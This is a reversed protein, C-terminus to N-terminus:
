QAFHCRVPAHFQQELRHVYGRVLLASYDRATLSEHDFHTNLVSFSRQSYSLQSRCDLTHICVLTVVFNLHSFCCDFTQKNQIHAVKQRRGKKGTKGKKSMKGKEGGHKTIEFNAWTCIRALSAEWGVSGEEKPRDSLWFTGGEVLTLETANYLIGSHEDNDTSDGIRGRGYWKFGPLLGM